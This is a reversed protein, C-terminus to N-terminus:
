LRRAAGRRGGAGAPLQPLRRAPLPPPLLPPASRPFCTLMLLLLMFTPVGDLQWRCREPSAGVALGADGALRAGLLYLCTRQYNKDDAHAVLLGIREVELLLDVAEPESPLM